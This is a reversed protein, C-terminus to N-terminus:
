LNHIEIDPLGHNSLEQGIEDRYIPNAILLLDETGAVAFFEDTSAIRVLSSPLYKGVKKPNIDVAFKLKRMITPSLTKLHHCFTGAKGAGGWIFVYRKDAIKAEIARVTEILKPFLEEFAVYRWNDKKGYETGYDTSLDRLNAILYMYQEDFLKGKELVEGDFLNELAQPTFYNVHEYAMDFFANNRLIWDFDPVEIFIAGRGANARQLMRLFEHPEAVHELTHRLIVLEADIRDQATLYRREIRPNTGEYTEDYGTVDLFGSAELQAVFDGKGCGVEVIKTATGYRRSIIRVVSQLYTRFTASLVVSNQYNEDYKIVAADFLDNEVLKLKCNERLRFKVLPKDDEVKALPANLFVPVLMSPFGAAGSTTSASHTRKMETRSRM